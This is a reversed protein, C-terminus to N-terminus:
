VTTKNQNENKNEKIGIFNCNINIAPFKTVERKTPFLYKSLEKTAFARVQKDPDDLMEALNILAKQKLDDIDGSEIVKKINRKMDAIRQSATTGMVSIAKTKKTGAQLPM